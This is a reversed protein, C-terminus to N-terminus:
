RAFFHTGMLDAPEIGWKGNRFKPIYFKLFYWDSPKTANIMVYSESSAIVNSEMTDLDFHQVAWGGWGGRPSSPDDIRSIFLERKGNATIFTFDMVSGKYQIPPIIIQQSNFNGSGDNLLLLTKTAKYSIGNYLIDNDVAGLLLDVNGDSNVDILEVTYYPGTAVNPDVRGYDHYFSGNKDNILFYVKKDKVPDVVILDPYGDGNVDAAGAAHYYGTWPLEKLTFNGYGNSLLLNPTEGPAPSIFDSGTCAIFVDPVGDKNFDAVVNKAAHLCGKFKQKVTLTNDPNVQNITITTKYKGVAESGAAAGEKYYDHSMTVNVVSLEGKVLFEGYGRISGEPYIFDDVMPYSKYNKYSTNYTQAPISFPPSPDQGGCGYLGFVVASLAFLKRM